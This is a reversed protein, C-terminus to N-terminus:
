TSPTNEFNTSKNRKLMLNYLKMNKNRNIM